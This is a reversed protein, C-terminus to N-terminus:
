RPPFFEVENVSVHGPAQASGVASAPAKSIWLAVLRFGEKPKGLKIRTTHKAVALKSLRVWAPDTISAPAAPSTSGFVQVSMGPTSTVLELTALRQASKLDVLLGAAMKPAVSPDVLATWGTTTEGDIALTPDGFDSAPLGDPNYTTAANTDVVIAESLAEAPTTTTTPSSTTHTAPPTTTTAPHTPTTAVPTTVAPKAPNVLPVKPAKVLPLLGKAGTGIKPVAPPPTPASPAAPTKAVGAGPLTPALALTSLPRRPHGSSKSLAAYAAVAAGAVLLAVASLVAAAPRWHHSGSLLSGPAGTGCHLCWDQGGSLPAGCNACSRVVGPAQAPAAPQAQGDGTSAPPDALLTAV